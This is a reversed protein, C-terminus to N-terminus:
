YPEGPKYLGLEILQDRYVRLCDKHVYVVCDEYVLDGRVFAKECAICCRADKSPRWKRPKQVKQKPNM